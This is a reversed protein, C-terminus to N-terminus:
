NRGGMEILYDYLEGAKEMDEKTLIVGYSTDPIYMVEVGFYKETYSEHIYLTKQYGAAYEMEDIKDLPRIVTTSFANFIYYNSGKQLIVEKRSDNFIYRYGSIIALKDLAIYENLLDQGYVNYLCSNSENMKGQAFKGIANKVIDSGTEDYYMGLAAFIIGQEEMSLISSDRGILDELVIEDSANKSGAEGNSETNGSSNGTNKSNGGTGNELNQIDDIDLDFYSAIIKSMDSESLEESYTGVKETAVNEATGLLNDLRTSDGINMLRQSSLVAYIDKLANLVSQPNSKAFDGIANIKSEVGEYQGNKIDSIAENTMSQIVSSVNGSGLAAVAAAKEVESATSSNIINNLETELDSIQKDIVEIEADIKKAGALDNKDLAELKEQQLENKKELLSDMEGNGSKNQVSSLKENLWQVYSDVSSKAYTSFEDEKIGESYYSSEEILTKIYELATEESMRDFESQLIFQLETRVKEIETQQEKLVKQKTADASTSPLSKYETGVGGSLSEYFGDNIKPILTAEIYELEKEMDKITGTNINNLYILKRVQTDCSVYDSEKAYDILSIIEDYEAKSLVTSGEDLMKNLYINYSEEINAVSESLATLLNNDVTFGDIKDRDEDEKRDESAETDNEKTIPATTESKLIDNESYEKNRSIAKILNDMAEQQINNFIQTRRQADIKEMVSLVMDCMAAEGDDRKLIEYYKQLAALNEDCAKTNEDSFDLSYFDRILQINRKDTDTKDENAELNDYQLKLPNLEELDELNYPLYIDFISVAKGTRLDYTIGDSKTHHTLNLIEIIQNSVLVGSTTIDELSSADTIDYWEGNALESKYYMNYQSSEEASQQAVEYISDSMSGLYILHTGIILTSDEISDAKIRVSNTEDILAQAVVMFGTAVVITVLIVLMINKLKKRNM